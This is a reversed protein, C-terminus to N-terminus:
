VKGILIKPNRQLLELIFEKKKQPYVKIRKKNGSKIIIYKVKEQLESISEIKVSEKLLGKFILTDDTIEYHGLIEKIGTFYVFLTTLVIIFIYNKDPLYNITFGILVVDLLVLAVFIVIATAWKSNLRRYKEFILVDM